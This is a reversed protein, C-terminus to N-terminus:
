FLEDRQHFNRYTFNMRNVTPVRITAGEDRLEQLEKFPDIVGNVEAIIWWDVSRGSARYAISSWTDAQRVPYSRDDAFEVRRFRPWRDLYPRRTVVGAFDSVLILTARNNRSQAAIGM